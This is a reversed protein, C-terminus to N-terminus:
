PLVESPLFGAAATFAIRARRRERELDILALHAHNLDHAANVASEQSGEGAAVAAEARASSQESATVLHERTIGHRDEASRAKVLAARVAVVASQRIRETEIRAARLQAQARAIRASGTNFLPVEVLATVAAAQDGEMDREFGGGLQVSKLRGRSALELAAAAARARAEAARVDLRSAILTDAIDSDNMLAGHLAIHTSPDPSGIQWSTPAGARGVLALLELRASEDAEIAMEQRHHADVFEAQATAVGDGALEGAAFKARAISLLQETQRLDNLAYSSEIDRMAVEHWLTRAESAIGVARAGLALLAAEYTDRAADSRIPQKWLDDIQVMLMAVIPVVGMSDLPVGSAFNVVPNQPAAADLSEARMADLEALMRALEPNADLAMTVATAEDLATPLPTTSDGKLSDADPHTPSDGRTWAPTAGTRATIESGISTPPDLRPPSCGVAIAVPLTIAFALARISNHM